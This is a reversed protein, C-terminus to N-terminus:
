YDGPDFDDSWNMKFKPAVTAGPPLKRDGIAVLHAVLHALGLDAKIRVPLPPLDQRVNAIWFDTWKPRVFQPLWIRRSTGALMTQRARCVRASGTYMPGETESGAVESLHVDYRRRGDFINLVNDCLTAGSIGYITVFIATMPDMTGLLVHEPVPDRNDEAATPVTKYSLHHLSEYNIEVTRRQGAWSGRVNYYEPRLGQSSLYGVVKNQARFETLFDFIGHSRARSEVVYHKSDANAYIDASGALMDGIFVDYALKLNKIASLDALSSKAFILTFVFVVLIKTAKYM